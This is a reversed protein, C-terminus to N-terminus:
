LYPKTECFGAQCTPTCYIKPFTSCLFKVGCITGDAVPDYLCGLKPSCTDSTCVNNDTCKILAGKCVGASCVDGTTCVSSDSCPATNAVYVCAGTALDCSDNTCPNNDNCVTATGYCAGSKCTDPTTCLSGDDCAASNNLYVCAGTATNCSDDTCVKGDSCKVAM